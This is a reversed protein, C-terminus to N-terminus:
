GPDCRRAPGRPNARRVGRPPPLILLPAASQRAYPQYRNERPFARSCAGVRRGHFRLAANGRGCDGWVSGDLYGGCHTPLRLGAAIAPEVLASSCRRIGRQDEQAEVVLAVEAGGGGSEGDDAGGQRRGNGPGREGAVCNESARAAGLM